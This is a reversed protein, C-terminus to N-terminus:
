PDRRAQLIWARGVRQSSGPAACKAVMPRGTAEPVVGEFGLAGLNLEEVFVDIVRVANEDSVFDDLFEPLLVGQAATRM